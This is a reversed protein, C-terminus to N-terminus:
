HNTYLNNNSVFAVTELIDELVGDHLENHHFQVHHSNCCKGYKSSWLVPGEQAMKDM